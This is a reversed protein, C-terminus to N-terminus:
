WPALLSAENKAGVEAGCWRAARGHALTGRPALSHRCDAGLVITAPFSCRDPAFCHPLRALWGRPVRARPLRADREMCGRGRERRRTGVSANEKEEEEDVEDDEEDEESEEGSSAGGQMM